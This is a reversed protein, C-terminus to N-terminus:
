ILAASSVAQGWVTEVIDWSWVVSELGDEGFKFEHTKVNDIEYCKRTIYDKFAQDQNKCQTSKLFGCWQFREICWSGVVVICGFPSRASRGTTQQEVALWSGVIRHHDSGTKEPCHFGSSIRCHISQSITFPQLLNYVHVKFRKMEESTNEGIPITEKTKNKIPNLRSTKSM